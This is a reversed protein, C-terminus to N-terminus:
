QKIGKVMDVLKLGGVPTIQIQNNSNKSLIEQSILDNLINRTVAKPIKHERYMTDLINTEYATDYPGHLYNLVKIRADEEESTSAIPGGSLVATANVVGFSALQKELDAVKKELEAYEDNKSAFFGKAQSLQQELGNITTNYTNIAEDHQSIFKKREAELKQILEDSVKQTSSLSEIQDQLPQLENEL